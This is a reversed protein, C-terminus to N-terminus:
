VSFHNLGPQRFGKPVVANFEFRIHTRARTVAGIHCCSLRRLGDHGSACGVDALEAFESPVIPNHETVSGRLVGIVFVIGLGM